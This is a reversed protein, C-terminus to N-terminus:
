ESVSDSDQSHDEKEPINNIHNDSENKFPLQKSGIKLTYRSSEKNKNKWENVEKDIRYIILM